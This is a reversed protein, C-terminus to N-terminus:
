PGRMHCRPLALAICAAADAARFLFAVRAPREGSQQGATMVRAHVGGARDALAAGMVRVALM